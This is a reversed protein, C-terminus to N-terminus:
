RDSRVAENPASPRAIRGPQHRARIRSYALAHRGAVCQCGLASRRRRKWRTANPHWRFRRGGRAPHRPARCGHRAGRDDVTRRVVPDVGRRLGADVPPARPRHRCAREIRCPGPRRDWQPEGAGVPRRETTSRRNPDGSWDRPEGTETVGFAPWHGALQGDPEPKRHGRATPM